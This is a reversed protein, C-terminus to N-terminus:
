AIERGSRRQRKTQPGGGGGGGPGKEVGAGAFGKNEVGAPRKAHDGGAPQRPHEDLGRVLGRVQGHAIEHFGHGDGRVAVGQRRGHPMKQGRRRPPQGHHVGRALGDADQRRKVHRPQAGPEVFQATAGHGAGHGPGHDRGPGALHQAGHEVAHHAHAHAAHHNDFRVFRAAHERGAVRHGQEGPALVDLFRRNRRDHAHRDHGDRRLQGQGLGHPAHVPGARATEGDGVGGAIQDAQEGPGVHRPGQGRDKGFGFARGQALARVEVVVEVVVGRGAQEAQIRRSPGKGGVPGQGPQQAVPVHGIEQALRSIRRM